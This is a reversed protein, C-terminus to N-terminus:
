DADGRVVDGEHWEFRGYEIVEDGRIDRHYEAPLWGKPPKPDGDWGAFATPKRNVVPYIDWYDFGQLTVVRYARGFWRRIRNHNDLLEMLARLRPDKVRPQVVYWHPNSAMTKAFTWTADNVFGKAEIVTVESADELPDAGQWIAVLDLVERLIAVPEEKRDRGKIILAALQNALEKETREKMRVGPMEDGDDEVCAVDVLV